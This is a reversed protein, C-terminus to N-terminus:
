RESELDASLHGEAFSLTEPADLDECGVWSVSGDTFVQRKWIPVKAKVEDILMRAAEFAEARHPCSAAVVVALDGVELQGIRHLVALGTVPLSTAVREAVEVMASGALPHAQYELSLVGHGDDHDRVVGVFLAIGGASPDSVAGICEDVSLPAERIEALRIKVM